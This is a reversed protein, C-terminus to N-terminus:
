DTGATRILREIVGAFDIGAAAAAQPVLSRATMGPMTNVELVVLRGDGDLIMDTRSVGRLGLLEHVKLALSRGAGEVEPTVEAPCIEIAGEADYKERYDFFRSNRPKLEVLPLAVPRGRERDDLVGGTLERGKVFGEVLLRDGHAGITEFALAVDGPDDCIRVELSSGGLPDKVVLPTGLERCVEEALAQRGRALDDRSLARFRATAVGHFSLVEKTRIKDIAIASGRVGSGAFRIGAAQLCAQITGDEGFRGHLIPLAVDTKWDVLDEIASWPGAHEKWSVDPSLPDFGAPRGKAGRGGEVAKSAVRWRGERTIMVPRVEYRRRDLADVVNAGGRLSVDHESSPGGMVVAVRIREM